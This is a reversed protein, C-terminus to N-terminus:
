PATSATLAEHPAEAPTPVAERLIAADLVSAIADLDHQVGRVYARIEELTAPKATAVLRALDDRKSYLASVDRQMLEWAEWWPNSAMAETGEATTIFGILQPAEIGPFPIIRHADENTDDVPLPEAQSKKRSSSKGITAANVTRGDGDEILHLPAFVAGDRMDEHCADVTAGNTAATGLQVAQVEAANHATRARVARVKRPAAHVAEPPAETAVNEL